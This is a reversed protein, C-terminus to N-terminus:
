PQSAASRWCTPRARSGPHDRLVLGALEHHVRRALPDRAYYSWADSPQVLRLRLTEIAENDYQGVAREVPGRVATAPIGSKHAVFGTIADVLQGRDCEM